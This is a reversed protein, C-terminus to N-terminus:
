RKGFGTRVFITPYDPVSSQQFKWLQKEIRAHVSRVSAKHGKAIELFSASRQHTIRRDFSVLSHALVSYQHAPIVSAM